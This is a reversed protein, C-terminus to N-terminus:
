SRDARCGTSGCALLVWPLMDVVGLAAIEFTGAKLTVIATFPLALNTVQTGFQSITQASWLRVFDRNRWLPSKRLRLPIPAGGPSPAGV